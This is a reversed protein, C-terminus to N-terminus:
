SRNEDKRREYENCKGKCRFMSDPMYFLCEGDDTCWQCSDEPLEMVLNKFDPSIVPSTFSEILILLQKAKEKDGDFLFEAIQERGDWIAGGKNM